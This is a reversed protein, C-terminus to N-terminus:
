DKWPTELLFLKRLGIAQEKSPAADLTATFNECQEAGLTFRTRDLLAEEACRLSNELIFATRRKGLSQAAHDRLAKQESSIRLNIVNAAQM